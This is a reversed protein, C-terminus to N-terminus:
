KMRPGFLAEIKRPLTVPNLGGTNNAGLRELTQVVLDPTMGGPDLEQVDSLPTAEQQRSTLQAHLYALVGSDRLVTWVASSCTHSTGDYSKWCCWLPLRWRNYANFPKGLEDCCSLFLSDLWYQNLQLVFFEYSENTFERQYMVTGFPVRGLDCCDTGGGCGMLCCLLASWGAPRRDDTVASFALMTAEFWLQVHGYTGSWGATSCWGRYCGDPPGTRQACIRVRHHNELSPFAMAYPLNAKAQELRKRAAECEFAIMPDAAHYFEYSYPLPVRHSAAMRFLTTGVLLM